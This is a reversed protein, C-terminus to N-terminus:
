KRKKKRLAMRRKMEASREEESMSAWYGKTAKHAPETEAKKQEETRGKWRKRRARELHEKLDVMRRM